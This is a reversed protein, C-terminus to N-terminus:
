TYTGATTVTTNQTTNGNSWSYLSFGSGANLTLSGGACFSSGGTITTTPNPNVSVAQSATGVCGNANTITITYTGATTVTTNQTTNGNSWSYSSFGSGSNLTLSGGACFSSGGTITTTPNAAISITLTRATSSGCGNVAIVSIIGGSGNSTVTISNSTSTGTWGTPLTWTYSTAGSVSGVSYTQSSGSCITSNGSISGPQSPISCPSVKAWWTGWTNVTSTAYEQLTWLNVSDSPDVTTSSYDGWRNATGSFTKYYTNAGTQYIYPVRVKNITDAAVRLAYGASPHINASLVSFGILADSNVNVGISPYCYNNVGTADDIFGNQTIGGLTDLQWWEVSCRTPAASPLFASHAVWLSNNRFTVSTIRDDDLDLKNTTGSQPGSDSGTSNPSDAWATTGTITTAASMSPTTPTGSIKFMRLIKNLGDYTELLFINNMYPNYTIAPTICFDNTSAALTFATNPANTNAYLNAKNFVYVKAGAFSNGTRTFLNGSIVIWNKNFGLEPFDLWNTGTADVTIKFLNWAGTPDNTQSVGILLAATTTQPNAFATTIWRNSYPDYITKPDFTSPSGGVPSWFANLTVTSVVVGTKDTIRVQSNLTTMVHNLGIAGYTDPPIVTGNDTIGNFNTTPAPSSATLFLNSIPPQSAANQFMSNTHLAATIDSHHFESEANYKIATAENPHLLDYQQMQLMTATGHTTEYGMEGIVNQASSAGMGIIYSLFMLNITLTSVTLKFNKM